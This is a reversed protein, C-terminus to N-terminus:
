GSRGHLRKLFTHGCGILLHPTPSEVRSDGKKRITVTALSRTRKRKPRAPANAQDSKRVNNAGHDQRASCAAANPCLANLHTQSNWNARWSAAPMIPRDYLRVWVIRM